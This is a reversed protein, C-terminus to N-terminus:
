ALATAREAKKLRNESMKKDIQEPCHSVLPWRHDLCGPVEMFLKKDTQFKSWMKNRMGKGIPLQPM